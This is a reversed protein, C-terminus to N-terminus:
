QKATSHDGDFFERALRPVEGLLDMCAALHGKAPLLVLQSAPSAAHLRRSNEAPVLADIEGHILLVRANTKSIAALSSADDTNFHAIKGAEHLVAAYDTDSLFWGPLPLLLKAFHPVEDKLTAFPAVAVVSSVRPDIASYQIAVSAGLSTGYVGVTAGALNNAQLFDTVQVLDRAEVVGYTILRGTSEGHGRLDVLVARYGADVFANAAHRVVNHNLLFGHLILITGRAPLKDPEIVWVALSAQPPGVPVSLRREGKTEKSAVPAPSANSLRSNPATVMERALAGTCGSLTGLLIFWLPVSFVSFACLRRIFLWSFCSSCSPSHPFQWRSGYAAIDNKNPVSLFALLLSCVLLHSRNM